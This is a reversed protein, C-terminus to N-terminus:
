LDIVTRGEYRSLDNIGSVIERYINKGFHIEIVQDSKSDAMSVNINDTDFGGMVNHSMEMSTSEIMRQGDLIGNTLGETIDEGYGAFVKSPSKIGLALKFPGQIWKPVLDLFFKGINRLLSGAGNLLGNIMDRGIKFLDINFFPKM